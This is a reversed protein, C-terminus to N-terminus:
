ILELPSSQFGHMIRVCSWRRTYLFLIFLVLCIFFLLYFNVLLLPINRGLINLFWRWFSTPYFFFVSFPLLLFFDPYSSSPSLKNVRSLKIHLTFLFRHLLGRWFSLFLNTM